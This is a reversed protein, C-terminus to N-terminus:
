SGQPFLSMELLVEGHEGDGLWARMQLRAVSEAREGDELCSMWGTCIRAMPAM